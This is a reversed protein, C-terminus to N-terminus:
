HRVEAARPEAVELRGWGEPPRTLDEWKVGLAKCLRDRSSQRIGKTLKDREWRSIQTKSIKSEDALQEQSWGRQNRCQKLAAPNLTDNM